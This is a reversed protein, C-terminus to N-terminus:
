PKCDAGRRNDSEEPKNEKRIGMPDFIERSTEDV